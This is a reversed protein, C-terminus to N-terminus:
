KSKNFEQIDEENDKSKNEEDNESNENSNESNNNEENHQYNIDETNIYKENINVENNCIDNINKDKKNDNNTEINDEEKNINEENFINDNNEKLNQISDLETNLDIKYIPIFNITQGTLTSLQNQYKQIEDKYGQNELDMKYLLVEYKKMKHKLQKNLEEFKKKNNLENIINEKEKYLENKEKILINIEKEKESKIEEIINKYKNISSSLKENKQNYFLKDNNIKNKLESITKELTKNLEETVSLKSKYLEGQKKLVKLESKLKFNLDSESTNKKTLDDIKKNLNNNNLELEKIKNSLFTICDAIAKSRKYEETSKLQFIIDKTLKKESM